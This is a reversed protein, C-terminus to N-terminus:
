LGQAWAPEGQARTVSAAQQAIYKDLEANGIGYAAGGAGQGIAPLNIDSPGAVGSQKNVAQQEAGTSKGLGTLFDRAWSSIVRQQEIEPQYARKAQGSSTGVGTLLARAWSSIGRQQEIEPQYAQQAQGAYAGAMGALQNTYQGIVGMGTTTRRNIAETQAQLYPAYLSSAQGMYDGFGPQTTTAPSAAPAAPAPPLGTPGSPLVTPTSAPITARMGPTARIPVVQPRRRRTGLSPIAM